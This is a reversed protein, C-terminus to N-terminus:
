SGVYGWAKRRSLFIATASIAGCMGLVVFSSIAVGISGSSKAFFTVSAATAIAILVSQVLFPECKHARLYIAEGQVVHNGIATLLLFLFVPWPAIRNALKPLVHPIAFVAAMVVVSAAAL